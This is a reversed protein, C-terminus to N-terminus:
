ARDVMSAEGSVASTHAPKTHEAPAMRNAHSCRQCHILKQITVHGQVHLAQVPHIQIADTKRSWEASGIM